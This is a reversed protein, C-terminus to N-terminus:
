AVQVGIARRAQFYDESVSYIILEKIRDKANLPSGLTPQEQAAVHAAVEIDGTLLLGVRYATLEAANAWRKVDTSGGGEIFKKMLSKLTDIESAQMRSLFDRAVLDITAQDSPVPMECIRMCAMFAQKLSQPSRGLAVYAYMPMYLDIMHRAILFRLHPDKKGRLANSCAVMTPRLVQERKINLILIDGPDNPRLYVEPVAVNLVDRVYKAVQAFPNPDV